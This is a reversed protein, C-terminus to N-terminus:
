KYYNNRMKKLFEHTCTHLRAVLKLKRVLAISLHIVANKILEHESSMVVSGHHNRKRKAPKPRKGNIYILKRIIRFHNDSYNVSSLIILTGSLSPFKYVLM